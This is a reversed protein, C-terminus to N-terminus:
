LKTDKSLGRSSVFESLLVANKEIARVCGKGPEFYKERLERCDTGGMAERFLAVYEACLARFAPTEHAPGPLLLKGLPQYNESFHGQLHRQLEDAKRYDEEELAERIKEVWGASQGWPTLTEVVAYDPHDAGRDPEGTWLTIDNLSIRDEVPGGYVLAGLKGNGLPLAEEFYTAPRNYHLVLPKKESCSLSALCLAGCALISAIKM